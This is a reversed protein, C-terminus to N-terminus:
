VSITEKLWLTMKTMISEGSLVETRVKWKGEETQETLMRFVIDPTDGPHIGKLFKINEAKELMLEKELVMSALERGMELLCAGPTIPNGPFHARYIRHDEMLRVSIIAEGRNCAKDVIKYLNDLFM